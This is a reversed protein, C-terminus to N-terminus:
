RPIIISMSKGRTAQLLMGTDGYFDVVYRTFSM